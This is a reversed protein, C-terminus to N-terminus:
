QQGKKSEGEEEKNGADSDSGASSFRSYVEEGAQKGMLVPLCAPVKGKLSACLREARKKDFFPVSTVLYRTGSFTDFRGAKFLWTTDPVSNHVEEKAAFAESSTPYMGMVAFWPEADLWELEGARLLLKRADDGQIEHLQGDKLDYVMPGIWTEEKAPKKPLLECPRENSTRRTLKELAVDYVVLEMDQDYDVDLFADYSKKTESVEACKTSGQRDYRLEVVELAERNRWDFWALVMDELSAAVTGPGKQATRRHGIAVPRGDMWRLGWYEVKRSVDGEDRSGGDSSREWALHFVPVFLWKDPVWDLLLIFYDAQGERRMPGGAFVVLLEDGEDEDMDYPVVQVVSLDKFEGRWPYAVLYTDLYDQVKGVVKRDFRGPKQQFRKKLFIHLQHAQDPLPERPRADASLSALTISVMLLLSSLRRTEYM